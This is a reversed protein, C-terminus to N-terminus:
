VVLNIYYKLEKVIPRIKIELKELIDKEQTKEPMSLIRGKITAYVDKFTPYDDSKFKTFDSNFDIGFRKYTEQVVESFMNVVDKIGRITEGTLSWSIAEFISSKGSGNSLALDKPNNNVGNVLTFGRDQLNIEAYGISLFNEIIIKKFNLKM